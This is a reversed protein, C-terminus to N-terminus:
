HRTSYPEFKTQIELVNTFHSNSAKLEFSINIRTQKTKNITM